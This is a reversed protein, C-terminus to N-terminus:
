SHILGSLLPQDDADRARRAGDEADAEELHELAGADRSM